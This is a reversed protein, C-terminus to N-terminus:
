ILKYKDGIDQTHRFTRQLKSATSPTLSGATSAIFAPSNFRLCGQKGSPLTKKNVVNALVVREKMSAEAARARDSMGQFPGM